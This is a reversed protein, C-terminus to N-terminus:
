SALVCPISVCMTRNEGSRKALDLENGSIEKHISIPEERIM